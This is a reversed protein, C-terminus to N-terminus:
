VRRRREWSSFRSCIRLEMKSRQNSSYDTRFHKSSYRTAPSCRDAQQGNANGSQREEVWCLAYISVEAQDSQYEGVSAETLPAKSHAPSHAPSLSNHGAPTHYGDNTTDLYSRSPLEGSLDLDDPNGHHHGNLSQGNGSGAAALVQHPPPTAAPTLVLPTPTVSRTSPPM